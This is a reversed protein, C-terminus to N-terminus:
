PMWIAAWNTSRSSASRHLWARGTQPASTRLRRARERCRCSRRRLSCRTGMRWGRGICWTASCRWWCGTGPRRRRCLLRRSHRHVCDRHCRRLRQRCRGRRLSLIVLTFRRPRLRRRHRRRLPDFCRKPGETGPLDTSIPGRRLKACDPGGALSRHESRHVLPGFGAFVRGCDAGCSLTPRIRSLSERSLSTSPEAKSGSTTVLGNEDFEQAASRGSSKCKITGTGLSFRGHAILEVLVGVPHPAGELQRAAADADGRGVGGDAADNEVAGALDDALAPM